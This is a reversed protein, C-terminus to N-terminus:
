KFIQNIKDFKKQLEWPFKFNKTLNQRRLEKWVNSIQRRATAAGKRRTSAAGDCSGAAAGEMVNAGSIQRDPATSTRGCRVNTRNLRGNNTLYSVFKTLFIVFM